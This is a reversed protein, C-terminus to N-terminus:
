QSFDVFNALKKPFFGVFDREFTRQNKSTFEHSCLAFKRKCKKQVISYKSSSLSSMSDDFRQEIKTDSINIRLHKVSREDDSIFLYNVLHIFM